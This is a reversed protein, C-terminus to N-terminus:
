NCDRGGLTCFRHCPHRSIGLSLLWTGLSMAEPLARIYSTLVLYDSAIIENIAM